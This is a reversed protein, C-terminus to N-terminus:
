GKDFMKIREMMSMRRSSLSAEIASLRAMAPTTAREVSATLSEERATAADVRATRASAPYGRGRSPLRDRAWPPDPPPPTVRVVPSPPTPPSRAPHTTTTEEARDFVAFPSTATSARDFAAMPSTAATTTTTPTGAVDDLPAARREHMARSTAAAAAIGRAADIMGGVAACAKAELKGVEVEGGDERGDGAYKAAAALALEELTGLAEVPASLADAVADLDLPDGSSGAHADRSVDRSPDPCMRVTAAEIASVASALAATRFDLRDRTEAAAAMASFAAACMARGERRVTRLEAETRALAAKNADCEHRAADALKVWVGEVGRATAANRAMDGLEAEHSIKAMALLEEARTADRRARALEKEALREAERRGFKAAGQSASKRIREM